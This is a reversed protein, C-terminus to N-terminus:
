VPLCQRSQLCQVPGILWPCLPGALRSHYGVYSYTRKKKERAERPKSSKSIHCTPIEIVEDTEDSLIMYHTIPDIPPWGAFFIAYKFMPDTGRVMCRRQDFLILSAAITAGESYGIIGEFPGREDMIKLLFKLAADASKHSSAIGEKMLERM